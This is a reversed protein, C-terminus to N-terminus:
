SRFTSYYLSLVEADTLMRNVFLLQGIYCNTGTSYAGSQNRCATWMPRTSPTGGGAGTVVVGNVGIKMAAGDWGFMFQTWANAACVAASDLKTGVAGSYASATTNSLQIMSYNAGDYSGFLDQFGTVVALRFWGVVTGAPGPVFGTDFYQTAGDYQMCAGTIGQALAAATNLYTPRTGVAGPQTLPTGGTILSDCQTVIPVRVASIEDLEIYGATDAGTFQYYINPVGSCMKSGTYRVWANAAAASAWNSTNGGYVTGARTGDGRAYLDYRFRAGATLVAQNANPYLVGNYAVRMCNGVQGGAQNSLTASNGATWKTFDVCTPDAVVNAGTYVFDQYPTLTSAVAPDYYALTGSPLRFHLLGSVKGDWDWTQAAVGTVRLQIANGSAAANATCGCAAPDQIVPSAGTARITAVGAECSVAYVNKWSYCVAPDTTKEGSLELALEGQYADPLVMQVVVVNATADRTQVCNDSLPLLNM